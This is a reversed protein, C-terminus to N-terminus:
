RAGVYGGYPQRGPLDSGVRSVEPRGTFDRMPRDAFVSL